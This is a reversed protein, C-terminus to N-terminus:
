KCGGDLDRLPRGADARLINECRISEECTTSLQNCLTLGASYQAPGAHELCALIMTGFLWVATLVLAFRLLSPPMMRRELKVDSDTPKIEIPVDKSEGKGGDKKSRFMGSMQGVIGIAVAALGSVVEPKINFKALAFLFGLFLAVM